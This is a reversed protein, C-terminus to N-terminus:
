ASSRTTLRMPMLLGESADPVSRRATMLFPPGLRILRIGRIFPCRGSCCGHLQAHAALSQIHCTRACMM